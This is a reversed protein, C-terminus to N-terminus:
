NKSDLIGFIRESCEPCIGHTVGIHTGEDLLGLLGIAREVPHWASADGAVAHCWSCMRILEPESRRSADFLAIAPRPSQRVLTSIFTVRNPATSLIKMEFERRWNPADCRFQFQVPHGDRARAILAGYVQRVAAGSIFDFLSRGILKPQQLVEGGNAEAFASWDNGVSVIRDHDDIDYVLQSM